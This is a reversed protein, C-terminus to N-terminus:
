NQLFNRFSKPINVQKSLFSNGWTYRNYGGFVEDGGDGSLCVKVQKQAMESVLFTPIQSSDSFPEDYIKPLNPIVERATKYSVYLENHQTGM